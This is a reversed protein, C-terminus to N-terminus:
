GSKQYEAHCEEMPEKTAATVPMYFRRRDCTLSAFRKISIEEAFRGPLFRTDKVLLASDNISASLPCPVMSLFAM